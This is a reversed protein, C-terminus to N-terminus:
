ATGPAGDPIDASDQSDQAPRLVVADHAVERAPDAEDPRSRPSVGSSEGRTRPGKGPGGAPSDGTKGAAQRRKRDFLELSRASVSRDRQAKPDAVDFAGRQRSVALAVLRWGKGEARMSDVLRWDEPTLVKPPRGLHVGKKRANAMGSKVMERLRQRNMKAITALIGTLLEVVFEDGQLDAFILGLDHDSQLRFMSVGVDQWGGRSWRDVAEVILAGAGHVKALRIAEKVKPRDLAPVGGSTGEDVVWAVVKHGDKTARALIAPKQRDPDQGKDDTSVRLYAILNM